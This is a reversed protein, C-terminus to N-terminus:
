SMVSALELGEKGMFTGKLVETVNCHVWLSISSPSICRRQLLNCKADDDLKMAAAAWTVRSRACPMARTANRMSQRLKPRSKCIEGLVLSQVQTMQNHSGCVMNHQSTYESAQGFKIGESAVFCTTDSVFSLLM